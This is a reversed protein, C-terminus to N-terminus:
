LLIKRLKDFRINKRFVVFEVDIILKKTFNKHISVSYCKLESENIFISLDIKNSLIKTIDEVDNSKFEIYLHGNNYHHLDYLDRDNFNRLINDDLQIDYIKHNILIKANKLM